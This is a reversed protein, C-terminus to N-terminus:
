HMNHKKLKLKRTVMREEINQEEILGRRLLSKKNIRREDDSRENTKKKNGFSREKTAFVPIRSTKRHIRLRKKPAAAPTVAAFALEPKAFFRRWSINWLTCLKEKAFM